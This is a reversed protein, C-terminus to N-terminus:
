EGKFELLLYNQKKKDGSIIILPNIMYVGNQIKNIFGADKFKGLIKNVNALSINSKEAISKQNGIVQNNSKDRNAVLWLLLKLECSSNDFIALLSRFWVKDFSQSNAIISIPQIVEATQFDMFIKDKQIMGINQCLFQHFELLNYKKIIM